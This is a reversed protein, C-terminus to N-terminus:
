PPLRHNGPEPAAVVKRRELLREVLWVPQQSRAPIKRGSPQERGVAKADKGPEAVVLRRPEVRNGALPKMNMVTPMLFMRDAAMVFNTIYVIGGGVLLAVVPFVRRWSQARLAPLLGAVIMGGFVARFLWRSRYLAYAADVSDMRQSGPLPMIFWVNALEFLALLAVGTYFLKKM